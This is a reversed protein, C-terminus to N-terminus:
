FINLFLMYLSASLAIACPLTLVWAMLLNRVTAMQLGSGNAAMTGAVGSSLVHTTSVPLGYVDAAAITGAAVLEASAGQAYTLHSKGIKEGVTVVIRKWGIMTGLGLAIAVAVKVWTPIFRTANDLEKKYANLVAVEQKSLSNEKDKMLFRLAESALYMDNRTNSVADAPISALSGYRDVQTAIEKVLAALSVYTGEDIKRASVFQTVAPRPNGLLNYGAAQKEIVVAAAASATRFSEVHSPAPTRNLAYATPVTGILILMILGMGKQGDNSGHAFSVGTCTLILIGRIWWPPPQQGKPEAYLSPNRVLLKLSLLVLAAACFGFLPSLLLAYGIETAKSWDVGSTGDMGRALANAIGVGIISGILTHSSSAPLGLWWTGLNWIIAAILLAFVMAFGASSGVQLILEVPLLSVIGFAVAGTSTLVGLFNFVGSWVVALEAPLSHTYIVTAVANATDHFGNVFEFGLAILLAVLLMLYPLFTTIKTGTANVDSYVSYVVYLFGAALVGFFIIATLPNFGKDLDPRSSHAAPEIPPAQMAIETM